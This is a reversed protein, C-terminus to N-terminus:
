FLINQLDSVHWYEFSNNSLPRRIIFPIKKERLEMEAILHYDIIDKPVTVLPVSGTELQHARLGLIKAREYKTLIDLTQHLPDIVKNKANRVVTALSQIEHFNPLKCEPHCDVIVNRTLTRRFKQLYNEDEEEEEEDVIDEDELDDTNYDEEEDIPEEEVIDEKEKTM